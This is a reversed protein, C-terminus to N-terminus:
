AERQPGDFGYVDPAFRLTGDPAAWATLYLIHVPVAPQVPLRTLQTKLRAQLRQPIPDTSGCAALAVAALALGLTRTMLSSRLRASGRPRPPTVRGDCPRSRRPSGARRDRSPAADERSRDPPRLRARRM